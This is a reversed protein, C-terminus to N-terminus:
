SITETTSEYNGDNDRQITQTLTKGSLDHAYAVETVAGGSRTITMNGNSGDRYTGQQSVVRGEGDRTTSTARFSQVIERLWEDSLGADGTSALLAETDSKAQEADSASTSAAGASTSAAGAKTTATQAADAADQQSRYASPKGTDTGDELTVDGTSQQALALVDDRAKEVASLLQDLLSESLAKWPTSM